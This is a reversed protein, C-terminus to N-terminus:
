NTHPTLNPLVTNAHSICSPSLNQVPTHTQPICCSCSLSPTHTMLEKMLLSTSWHLSPDLDDGMSVEAIETQFRWAGGRM